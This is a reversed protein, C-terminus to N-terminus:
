RSAPQDSLMKLPPMSSAGSFQSTFPSPWTLMESATLNRVLGGITSACFRCGMRCGVQSSICVSLGYRYRMLVSEIVNGDDLGFLYKATGDKSRQCDVPPMVGITFNAKLLERNQKSINTMEDISAVHKQYLWQAMQGGTFAPMGLGRAVEKLEALTMGLLPKKVTEM